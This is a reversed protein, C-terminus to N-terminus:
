CSRFRPSNDGGFGSALGANLGSIPPLDAAVIGSKRRIDKMEGKLNKYIFEHVKTAFEVMEDVDLGERDEPVHRNMKVQNYLTAFVASPLKPPPMSHLEFFEQLFSMAEGSKWAIYGSEDLDHRPFMDLVVERMHEKDWLNGDNNQDPAAMLWAQSSISARPGGGMGSVTSGFGRRSGPVDSTGPIAATSLRQRQGGNWGGAPVPPKMSMRGGSPLKPSNPPPGTEDDTSAQSSPKSWRQPATPSPNRDVSGGPLNLSYERNRRGADAFAHSAMVAAVGSQPMESRPSTSALAQRLDPLDALKDTQVGRETDSKKAALDAITATMDAIKKEREIVETRLSHADTRLRELEAQGATSGLIAEIGKKIEDRERSAADAHVGMSQKLEDLQRRAAMQESLLAEESRDLEKTLHQTRDMLDQQADNAIKNCAVLAVNDEQLSQLNSRMSEIEQKAKDLDANNSGGHESMLEQKILVSLEDRMNGRDHNASQALELMHNRLQKMEEQSVEHEKRLYDETQKTNAAYKTSHRKAEALAQECSDARANATAQELELMEARSRLRENEMKSEAQAMKLASLDADPAARERLEEKLKEIQRHAEEQARTLKENQERMQELEASDAGGGGSGACDDARGWAQAMELTSGFQKAEVAHKSISVQAETLEQRLEQVDAGGKSSSTLEANKMAEYMEDMKAEMEALAVAEGAEAEAAATAAEQAANAVITGLELRSAALQELQAEEFAAKKLKERLAAVEDKLSSSAEDNATGIRSELEAKADEGVQVGKDNGQSVLPEPIAMLARRCAAGHEDSPRRRAVSTTVSTTVSPVAVPPPTSPLALDRPHDNQIESLNPPPWMEKNGEKVTTIVQSSPPPMNMGHDRSPM